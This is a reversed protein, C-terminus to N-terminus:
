DTHQSAGDYQQEWDDVFIGSHVYRWTSGGGEAAEVVHELQNFWGDPGEVRTVVRRPPEWVTVTGGFAAAGGERPEYRMPWLWGATGNVFGDFVAPPEVPLAGERRIEFARGM